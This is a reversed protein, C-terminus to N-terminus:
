QRMSECMGEIRQIVSVAERKANGTGTSFWCRDGAVELWEVRVVGHGTVIEARAPRESRDFRLCRIRPCAPKM